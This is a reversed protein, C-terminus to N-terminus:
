LFDRSSKKGGLAKRAAYLSQTNREIAIREEALIRLIQSPSESPFIKKLEILTRTDMRTAVSKSKAM